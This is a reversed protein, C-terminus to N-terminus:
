SLSPHGSRRQHVKSGASRVQRIRAPHARVHIGRKNCISHHWPSCLFSMLYLTPVIIQTFLVLPIRACQQIEGVRGRFDEMSVPMGDSKTATLSYFADSAAVLITRGCVATILAAANLLNMTSYM